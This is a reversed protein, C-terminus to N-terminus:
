APRWAAAVLIDDSNASWNATVTRGTVATATSFTGATARSDPAGFASDFSETVGTWTCTNASSDNLSAAILIGGASVNITGSPDSAGSIITATATTNLGSVAFTAFSLAFDADGTAVLTATTGSAVPSNTIFIAVHGDRLDSTPSSSAVKTCAVGDITMATIESSSGFGNNDGFSVAVIYRDVAATGIPVTLSPSTIDVSDTFGAYTVSAVGSSSGSIGGKMMGQFGMLM